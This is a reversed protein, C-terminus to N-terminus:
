IQARNYAFVIDEALPLRDSTNRHIFIDGFPSLTIYKRNGEPSLTLICLSFSDRIFERQADVCIKKRKPSPSM